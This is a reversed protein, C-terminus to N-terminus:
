QGTSPIVLLPHRQVVGRLRKPPRQRVIDRWQGGTYPGSVVCTRTAAQQGRAIEILSSRCVKSRWVSLRGSAEPAIMARLGQLLLRPIDPGPLFIASSRLRGIKRHRRDGEAIPPPANQVRGRLSQM